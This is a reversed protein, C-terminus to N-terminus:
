HGSLSFMLLKDFSKKCARLYTLGEMYEMSVKQIKNVKAKQGKLREGGANEIKNQLESVKEKLEKSGQTLKSIENEEKVIIKGLKELRDLEDKSPRSGAELSDLQKELYDLQSNLSDIQELLFFLNLVIALPVYLINM